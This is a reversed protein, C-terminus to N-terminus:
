SIFRRLANICSDTDLSQEVELHVARSALCTFIVGYGKCLSQGRKVGIPGFYDVGVNQEGVMGSYRKCFCCQSIIKRQISMQCRSNVGIAHLHKYPLQHSVLKTRPNSLTQAPEVRRLSIFCAQNSSKSWLGQLNLAQQLGQEHTLYM